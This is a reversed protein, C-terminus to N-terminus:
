REVPWFVRDRIMVRGDIDKILKGGDDAFNRWVSYLAFDAGTKKYILPKDSYVDMPLEELYGATVLRELSEPYIGTDRGFRLIATLALTAEVDMKARWGLENIKGLAPTLIELLVNGKTTAIAAEELCLEESRMQYPTKLFLKECSNYFVEAAQITEQKNPHFFLVRAAGM